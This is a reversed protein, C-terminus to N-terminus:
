HLINVIQLKTLIKGEEEYMEINIDIPIRQHGLISELSYFVHAFNHGFPAIINDINDNKVLTALANIASYYISKNFTRQLMYNRMLKINEIYAEKTDKDIIHNQTAHVIMENIHLQAHSIHEKALHLADPSFEVVIDLLEKNNFNFDSSQYTYTKEQIYDHNLAKLLHTVVNLYEFKDRKNNDFFVGHPNIMVKPGSYELKM